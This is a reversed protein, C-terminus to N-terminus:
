GCISISSVVEGEGSIELKHGERYVLAMSQSVAFRKKSSAAENLYAHFVCSSWLRRSGGGSCFWSSFDVYKENIKLNRRRGGVSSGGRAAAQRPV